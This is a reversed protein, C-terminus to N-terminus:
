HKTGSAVIVSVDFIKFPRFEEFTFSHCREELLTWVPRRCDASGIWNIFRAGLTLHRAYVDLIVFRTGPMCTDFIQECVKRWNALCTLGLSFFVHTPQKASIAEVAKKIGLPLALDSQLFVVSTDVSLKNARHRAKNLMGDSGDVGLIIGDDRVIEAFLPFDVGTGCFVDLVTAGNVLNLKEIAVKRARKYFFEGITAADYFPSFTDYWSQEPMIIGIPWM